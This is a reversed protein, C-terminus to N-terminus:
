GCRFPAHLAYAADSLAAREVPACQAQVWLGAGSGCLSARLLLLLPLMEKRMLRGEQFGKCFPRRWDRRGAVANGPTTLSGGQSNTFHKFRGSFLCQCASPVAVVREFTQTENDFTREQRCLDAHRIILWAAKLSRRNGDSAQLLDQVKWLLTFSGMFLVLFCVRVHPLHSYEKGGVLWRLIQYGSGDARGSLLWLDKKNQEAYQCLSLNM